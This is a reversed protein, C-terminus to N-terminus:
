RPLGLGRQAIITRQIESTGAYTTTGPSFRLYHEVRGGGPATPDLYSRLGDPGMLEVADEAHHVLAESSFLKTMPGEIDPTEGHQLLSANRRQMLLSIEVAAACRALRTRVDPADIPREGTEPSPQRAWAEAEDLMRGIRSGFAASHEDALAVTMVTWGKDVDGIRATDSVRVDNFFVINTREGSLTYVAQIEVGAQKVPVLFMTLGKHKPVETNTRTLLFVYDAIHANTTFMKQGSIVWEEGDRVARCRAAAVDSGSEPETFGLAMIIEGNMAKPVIDARQEPTGVRAVVRAINMTVGPGYTPAEARTLEEHLTVMELPSLGSGGEEESWGAALWGREVVAETYEPDYSTGSRYLAEEREPTMFGDLFERVDGRLADSKDGLRFDM